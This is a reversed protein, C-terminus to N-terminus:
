SRISRMARSEPVDTGATMREAIETSCLRGDRFGEACYGLACLSGPVAAGVIIPTNGPALSASGAIGPRMWM